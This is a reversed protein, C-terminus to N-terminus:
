DETPHERSAVAVVLRCLAEHVTAGVEETGGWACCRVAVTDDVDIVIGGHTYALLWALMQQPTPPHGWDLRMVRAAATAMARVQTQDTM